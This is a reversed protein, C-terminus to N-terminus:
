KSEHYGIISDTILCIFCKGSRHPLFWKIGIEESKGNCGCLYIGEQFTILPSQEEWDLALSYSSFPIM